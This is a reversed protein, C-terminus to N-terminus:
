YTGAEAREKLIKEFNELRGEWFRAYEANGEKIYQEIYGRITSITGEIQHTSMEHPSMCM